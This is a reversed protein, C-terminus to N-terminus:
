HLKKQDMFVNKFITKKPFINKVRDWIHFFCLVNKAVHFLLKTHTIKIYKKWKHFMNSFSFIFFYYKVLIVCSMFIITLINRYFWFCKQWFIYKNWINESVSFLFLSSDILFIDWLDNFCSLFYFREGSYFCQQRTGGPKRLLTIVATLTHEKCMDLISGTRTTMWGSAELRWGRRAAHGGSQHEDTPHSPREASSGACHLRTLTPHLEVLSPLPTEPQKCRLSLNASAAFGRSFRRRSPPALLKYCRYHDYEKM